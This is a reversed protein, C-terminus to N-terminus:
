RELWTNRLVGWSVRFNVRLRPPTSPNIKGEVTPKIKIVWFRYFSYGQFKTVSLLMRNCVNTVSETNMVQGLRWINILFWYPTNGIELWGRIYSFQWLKLVPSLISMFSPGTVLGALFFLVVDCFNSTSRMDSFQSTMTMKQIKPWNPAIWLGLELCLTQM